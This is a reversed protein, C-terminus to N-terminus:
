VAVALSLEAEGKVFGRELLFDLILHANEEPTYNVTDLTIEPHLPVEYPDDIGTFDKIEGRRAKAYMGKVDREECVGLPTDVFVEIFHDSGVLNRVDNRTSRYPSVAATIAMGGHRVIESAVYGIRLINTDRDEKSFGLGKSLNTRVVDGDLVSVQRGHELLLVTLVDATTSKGAGSLGTFWICVGQRHRPPYAEALVEAVEPRTFWSPLLRGNNLYDERVQTGSISATRADRPARSIEEYREEDPLYVLERFPVMGVGLEASFRQMLEQADYPGYFPKGTSDVGPSAHDRGVILHNAGYNRRIMAHKLVSRPGALRMALPLLTLLIRDTDYYRHALAKYTRVRTYHDVDGPKTMGVVPHLLLVADKEQAARKTLEEHVRHLPNRTQFAVVNSRGLRELRARTEAPTLRLDQFDYHIPLQLVRLRGSINIKGWQHMEAVLPHRLDRTGYSLQAEEDLNWDFIEEITMVALLENKSNRLAIDADLKIADSPEVPLTVPLGMVYGSTLKMTELVSRYDEKGLFRDLPSFAGTALLELDCVSRETLQVSPLRSAYDKLDAAQEAPVLLDVLRGGYPEILSTDNISTNNTLFMSSM